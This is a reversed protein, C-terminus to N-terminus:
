DGVMVPQLNKVNKATEETAKATRSTNEALSKGEGLGFGGSTLNAGFAGRVPGDMAFVSAAAAVVKRQEVEPKIAAKAKAAAVLNNLEAKATVLDSEAEALDSARSTDAPKLM